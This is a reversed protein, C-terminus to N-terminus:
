ETRIPQLADGSSDVAVNRFCGSAAALHLTRKVDIVWPGSRSLTLFAPQDRELVREREGDFALVGPGRVEIAEGFPVTRVTAIPVERYFGPAIPARVIQGGPGLVLLVGHDADDGVPMILGGLSTMGVAAPDARTLLALRLQEPALLARSGVFREASHVADILAIDDREGEIRVTIAKHQRAAATLPVQGSAILGAAAGAVTAEVLMPFVNNTGTSIPILPADPWVSAVARNTGDGGLTIILQCGLERMSRAASVTDM